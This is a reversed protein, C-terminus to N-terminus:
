KKGENEAIARAGRYWGLMLHEVINFLAALLVGLLGLLLIGSWMEPISFQRQFQVIMFGLGNNAAFMESAVMLIIAISLSQRAGTFIQPSAGPLILRFLLTSPRYRYTAATDKLVGDIGRVGIITNLLIPWLCGVAIVLLKMETGIGAFLMFIPVLIVVPMGRMFDLLPEVFARLRPALSLIIGVTVGVVLASAYGGLLRLVSPLVDSMVRDPFWTIGLQAVIKSLPPFYVSTSNASAFWWLVLLAIPLAFMFFMRVAFSKLATM